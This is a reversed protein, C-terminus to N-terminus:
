RGTPGAFRGDSIATALESRQIAEVAAAITETGFSSEARVELGGPDILISWGHDVPGYGMAEVAFASLLLRLRETQELSPSVRPSTRVILLRWHEREDRALLDCTGRFSALPAERDPWCVSWTRSARSRGPRIARVDRLRPADLWPEVLRIAEAVLSPSAAPYQRFAEAEAIRDIPEGDFFGPSTLIARLLRDLRAWRPGVPEALRDLDICPFSASEAPSAARRAQPFPQSGRPSDLQALLITREVVEL